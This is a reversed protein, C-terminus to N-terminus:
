QSSSINRPPLGKENQQQESSFNIEEDTFGLEHLDERAMLGREMRCVLYDRSQIRCKRSVYDNQKLCKLYAQVFSNCEADHDLPFSGKDPPTPSLLKKQPMSM